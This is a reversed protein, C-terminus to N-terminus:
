FKNRSNILEGNEDLDVAKFPFKLLLRITQYVGGVIAIFNFVLIFPLIKNAFKLEEEFYYFISIVIIMIISPILIKRIFVRIMFQKKYRSFTEQNM